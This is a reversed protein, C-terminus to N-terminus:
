YKARLQVVVTEGVQGVAATELSVEQFPGFAPSHIQYEVRVGRGAFALLEDVRQRFVAPQDIEVHERGHGIRQSHGATQFAYRVALDREAGNMRRRGFDIADSPQDTLANLVLGDFRQGGDHERGTPHGFRELEVHAAAVHSSGDHLDSGFLIPVARRGDLRGHGRQRLQEERGFLREDNAATVTGNTTV